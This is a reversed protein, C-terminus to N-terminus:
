DFKAFLRVLERVGFLGRQKLYTRIKDLTETPAERNLGFVPNINPNNGSGRLAMRGALEQYDVVGNKNDDLYDFLANIEAENFYCGLANLAEKFEKRNVGGCQRVDYHKLFRKVTKGEDENGHTRQRIKEFMTNIMDVIRQQKVGENDKDIGWPTTVALHFYTERERPLVSNMDLYYNIFADETM